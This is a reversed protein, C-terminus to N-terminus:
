RKSKDRALQESALLAQEALKREEIDINASSRIMAGADDYLPACRFLFWRYAGDFRRIRAEHEAPLGITLNDRWHAELAPLDDRM